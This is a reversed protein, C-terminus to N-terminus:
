MVGDEDLFYESRSSYKGPRQNKCYPDNRQEALTKDKSLIEDDLITGVHRSLADAHGIKSGARHEVVFDFESLRLSWRMLWSNQDAFTRLDTLAAHDTSLLFRKGYLYCHFYKTAWVLALMKAESVSYAQEDKSMQRSAYAIPREVGDQVQSLIAAVAIKSADTTLIFPLEFNPYATVPTTSLRAKLEEFAKQQSPCWTFERDKRTLETLPKAMEAFGQVLRRYLSALGLFARIDKVSEPVPYNQVAKVEEPSVSVRDETLV